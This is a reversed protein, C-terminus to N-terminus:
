ARRSKKVWCAFACASVREATIFQQKVAFAVAIYRIGIVGDGHNILGGRGFVEILAEADHTFGCLVKCQSDIRLGASTFGNIVTFSFVHLFDDAADHHGTQGQADAARSPGLTRRHLDCLLVVGAQAGGFALVALHHHIKILLHKLFVLHFGRHFLVYALFVDLVIRMHAIAYLWKHRIKHRIKLLVWLRSAVDFAHDHLTIQHHQMHQRALVWLVAAGRHHVNKAYFLAFNNLMPIHLLSHRFVSGVAIGHKLGMHHTVLLRGTLM